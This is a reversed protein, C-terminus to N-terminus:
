SFEFNFKLNSSRSILCICLIPYSLLLFFFLFNFFFLCDSFMMKLAETKQSKFVKTPKDENEDNQAKKRKVNERTEKQSIYFLEGSSKIRSVLADVDLYPFFHVWCRQEWQIRSRFLDREELWKKFLGFSSLYSVEVQESMSYATIPVTGILECRM